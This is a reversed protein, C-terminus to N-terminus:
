LIIIGIIRQTVQQRLLYDSKGLAKIINENITQYPLLVNILCFLRIFPVAQIWKKTLIVEVILETIGMIGFLIPVMFYLNIKLADHHRVAGLVTGFTAFYTINNQNCIEVTKRLIDTEYNQVEKISLIM